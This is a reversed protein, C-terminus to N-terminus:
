IISNNLSYNGINDHNHWITTGKRFVTNIIDMSSEPVNIQNNSLGIIESKGIQVYNFYERGTFNPVKLSNVKYGFKTFFDDISKAFEEKISMKYFYFGNKGSATIFDGANVNGHYTAPLKSHQYDSAMTDIIDDVGSSIMSGALPLGIGGLGISAIGALVGAGIKLKGTKNGYETATMDLGGINVGEQTLWNTYSDSAWALSPFKGGVLMNSEIGEKYNNPISVISGGVTCVGGISFTPVNDTFMEYKLINSGGNNNLELLYNYPYCKLKNNVPSYGDLTTQKTIQKSTYTPTSKGAWVGSWNIPDVGLFISPIMYANLVTWAPNNEITEIASLYDEYSSCIYFSGPNLIGNVNTAKRAVPHEKTGVYQIVFHFNTYLITETSNCIYDGTDLGEPVTHLGVTDDNVHERVVFSKKNKSFYDWWTSVEDVTFNIITAKDSSYEVNDIFAFFWKNNYYPNQIAMYNAQLCITYPIQVSIRNEGVKIFSYDNQERVLHEQSRLLNVLDGEHYDIVNQYEKDMNINKALIVISNRKENM